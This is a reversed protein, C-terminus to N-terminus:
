KQVREFTYKVSDAYKLELLDDKVSVRSKTVKNVLASDLTLTLESTAPDFDYKGKRTQPGDEMPVTMIFSKDANLEYTIGFMANLLQDTDEAVLISDDSSFTGDYNLKDAKRENFLATFLSDRASAKMTRGMSHIVMTKWKGVIEESIDKKSDSCAYLSMLILLLPIRIM